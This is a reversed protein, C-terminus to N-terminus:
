QEETIANVIADCVAANKAATSHGDMIVCHASLKCPRIATDVIDVGVGVQQQRIEIMMEPYKGVFAEILADCDASSTYDRTCSKGWRDVFVLEDGDMHAFTLGEVEEALKRIKDTNNM